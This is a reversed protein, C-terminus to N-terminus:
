RRLKAPPLGSLHKKYVEAVAELERFVEFAMGGALVLRRMLDEPISDTAPYDLHRLLTWAIWNWGAIDLAEQQSERMIDFIWRQFSLDGYENAGQHLRNQLGYLFSVKVEPPAGIDALENKLAEIFDPLDIEIATESIKKQM